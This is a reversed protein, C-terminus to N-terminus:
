FLACVVDVHVEETGVHLPTGLLHQHWMKMTEEFHPYVDIDNLVVFQDAYMRYVLCNEKALSRLANGFEQILKDGTQYGYFDNVENFNAMDFLAICPKTCKKVDMLFKFRNGLGSLTDTMAQHKLEDSKQMLDTINHRVSIFKEITRNEDLLPAITVNVYFASGDKARNKLFGKWIRKDLITDWMNKFTSKPTDPHRLISHSKGVIEDRTYGSTKLFAENVYTIKGDIDGM